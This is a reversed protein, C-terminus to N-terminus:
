QKLLREVEQLAKGHIYCVNRYTYGMECAAQELTQYQFYVKYLLDLQDANTIRELLERVENKKDVFADVAEDDSVTEYKVRGIDRLHAHEPGVSPYDLGSAVSYVPRPEGNEDKLMISNFGHMIGETGYKLSAAHIPNHKVVECGLLGALSHLLHGASAAGLRRATDREFGHPCVGLCTHVVDRNACQGM